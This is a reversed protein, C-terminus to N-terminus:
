RWLWRWFSRPSAPVKAFIEGKYQAWPLAMLRAKAEEEDAAVIPLAYHEGKFPYEFLFEREKM